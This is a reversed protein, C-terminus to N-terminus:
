AQTAGRIQGIARAVVGELDDDSMFGLAEARDAALPPFRGFGAELAQDPAYEVLRPDSGAQRAIEAALEAMTARVAPLTIAFPDTWLTRPMELAHHLNQAIRAASMMWMTAGPGIPATFRDRALAAHFVDSMFSSKMGSPGQPRAVIGPLRLSLADIAGRRALTALWTEMIAKHAGYLLRPRLPTEDDVRPPLPDGFVAISSAFVIRPRVRLEAARAVLRQLAEVNVRWGLGPDQEAAGGPVTALHVIADVGGALARDQVEADCIDGEVADDALDAVAACAVDSAILHHSGHLRRLLARGVFGGAGTVLVRMTM